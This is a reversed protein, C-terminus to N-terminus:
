ASGNTQKRIGVLTVNQFEPPFEIIYRYKLHSSAARTNRVAINVPQEPSLGASVSDAGSGATEAPGAVVEAAPSLNSAGAVQILSAGEEDM